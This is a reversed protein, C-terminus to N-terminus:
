RNNNVCTRCFGTVHVKFVADDLHTCNQTMHLTKELPRRLNRAMNLNNNTIGIFGQVPQPRERVEVRIGEIPRNAQVAQDMVINWGQWRQGDPLDGPEAGARQPGLDGL